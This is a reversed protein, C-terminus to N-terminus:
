ELFIELDHTRDITLTTTQLVAADFTTELIQLESVEEDVGCDPPLPIAKVQYGFRITDRTELSDSFWFIFEANDLSTPLPLEFISVEEVGKYLSDQTSLESFVADFVIATDTSDSAKLFRVRVTQINDSTFSCDDCAALGLFAVLFLIPNRM